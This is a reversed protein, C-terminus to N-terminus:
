QTESLLNWDFKQKWSNYGHAYKYKSSGFVGKENYNKISLLFNYSSYLFVCMQM